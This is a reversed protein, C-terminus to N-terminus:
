NNFESIYKLFERGKYTLNDSYGTRYGDHKGYIDKTVLGKTFLDDLIIKVMDNSDILNEYHSQIIKVTTEIKNNPPLVIGNLFKILEIHWPTITDIMNLFMMQQNEDIDINLATNLVANKFADIKEAQHNSIALQSARNLISTFLENEALANVEFGEVKNQLEELEEVIKIMWDKKRKEIPSSIVMKFIESAISGVGSISSLVANTAACAYDGKSNRLDNEIDHKLSM